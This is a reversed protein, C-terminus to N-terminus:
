RLIFRGSARFACVIFDKAWSRLCGCNILFWVFTEFVVAAAEAAAAEAEPRM